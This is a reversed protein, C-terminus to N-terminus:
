SPALCRRFPPSDRQLDKFVANRRAEPKPALGAASEGRSPRNRRHTPVPPSLAKRERIAAAKQFGDVLDGLRVFEDGFNQCAARDIADGELLMFVGMAGRRAVVVHARCDHMHHGVGRDGHQDDDAEAEGPRETPQPHVRSGAHDARQTMALQDADSIRSVPAM